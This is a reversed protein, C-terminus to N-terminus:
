NIKAQSGKRVERESKEIVPSIVFPFTALFTKLAISPFSLSSLFIDKFTLAGAWQRGMLPCPNEASVVTINDM